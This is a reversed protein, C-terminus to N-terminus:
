QAAQGHELTGPRQTPVGLLRPPERDERDQGTGAIAPHPAITQPSQQPPLDLLLAGAATEILREVGQALLEAGLFRDEAGALQPEIRLQDLDIERRELRGPRRARELLRRPEVGAGEPSKWKGPAGAKARHASSSRRPM